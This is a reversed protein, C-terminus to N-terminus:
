FLDSHTGTHILRLLLQYDNQEWILLWDGKIHCEWCGAFSGSLKHPRFQAPLEGNERLLKLVTEFAAMDLGRKKCLKLEKEFRRSTLVKYM